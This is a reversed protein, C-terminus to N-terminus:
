TSIDLLNQWTSYLLAINVGYIGFCVICINRMKFLAYALYVSIFISGVSMLFLIYASLLNEILILPIMMGYSLIGYVSNKQNFVSEEGFIKGIIGFGTGHDSDFAKTCSVWDNIDCM